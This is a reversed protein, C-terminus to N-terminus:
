RWRPRADSSEPVKFRGDATKRIKGIGEGVSDVLKARYGAKELSAALYAIGIPPTLPASYSRASFISSPRILTIAPSDEAAVPNAFKQFVDGLPEDTTRRATKDLIELMLLNPDVERSPLPLTVLGASHLGM